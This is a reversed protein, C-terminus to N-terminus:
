PVSAAMKQECTAAPPCRTCTRSSSASPTSRCRALGALLAGVAAIIIGSILGGFGAHSAFGAIIVLLGVLASAIIGIWCVVKALTQLKAGVYDFM